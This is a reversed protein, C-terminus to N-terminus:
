FLAASIIWPAVACFIGLIRRNRQELIFGAIGLAFADYTLHSTSFHVWHGTFMRWIEGRLIAECDYVFWGSGNKSIAIWFPAGVVLLTVWPWSLRTQKTADM